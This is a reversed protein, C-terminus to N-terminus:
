RLRAVVVAPALGLRVFGLLWRLSVSRRDRGKSFYSGSLALDAGPARLKRPANPMTLHYSNAVDIGLLDEDPHFFM